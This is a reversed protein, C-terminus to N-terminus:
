GKFEILECYGFYRGRRDFVERRIIGVGPSLWDRLKFRKRTMQTVWLEYSMTMCPFGGAPTTLDERDFIAVPGISIDLDLIKIDDAYGSFHAYSQPISDGAKLGHPLVWGLKDTKIDLGNMSQLMDPTLKALLDQQLGTSTCQVYYKGEYVTDEFANIIVLHILSSDGKQSSIVKVYSKFSPKNNTGYWQYVWEQGDNFTAISSCDKQASISSLYLLLIILQFLKRM